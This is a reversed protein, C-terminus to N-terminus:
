ANPDAAAADISFLGFDYSTGDIEFRNKKSGRITSTSIEIENGHDVQEEHWDYRLGNGASGHARVLAQRGMFLSRSAAVNSGAGYDDFRVVVDHSHLIVGNYMGLAGKFVPGSTGTAGMAAKQIDLWQGTTSTTRLNYADFESMLLIFRDEGNFKLPRIKPIGQGRGGMTKAKTVAKEIVTLSMVDAATLSGKSTAAGAYLQHASDPATFANGAYGTYGIDEVFGENVGRSGALYMATEEDDWRGWWEAQRARAVMRLDHLVRKRSMRGGASVGCRIQDIHVTDTAFKLSAMKGALKEDGYTPKNNLQRSLDYSITDGADKALDLLVQIPAMANEGKGAFRAGFYSEQAADAFLTASFRKVAKADNVGIVTTSM